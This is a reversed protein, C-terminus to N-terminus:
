WLTICMVDLSFLTEHLFGLDDLEQQIKNKARQPQEIGVPNCAKQECQNGHAQTGSQEAEPPKQDVWEHNGCAKKRDPSEVLADLDIFSPMLFDHFGRALTM